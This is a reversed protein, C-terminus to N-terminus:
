SLVGASRRSNMLNLVVVLMLSVGTVAILTLFGNAYDGGSADAIRSTIITGVAGGMTEIVTIAGLIKGYERLGFRDAVFLQLLVFTGGYNLGFLVAFLYVTNGDLSLFVLTSMFMTAASVLMVRLTSFRDALWGYAFKGCISLLFLLSQVRGAEAPSFGISPGQLYLNLQQTVVFLAYFVLAACLSFVWFVPTKIAEFLTWGDNRSITPEYATESAVLGPRDKVLFIVAPLLILWVLLSVLAMATRWGMSQILPTAIQPVIVGGFSTGTLVIGLALGRNRDFWNSVLVTCVLVGVFGLSTGLLAHAAYVITASAAQSYLVLGGGLIFCGLIMMTKPALRQLLFGALPALFGALLFTLAPATGYVSQIESQAVAGNAVLEDQIFKYFVPIGGISLGNSVALAFTAVGVIMWGYRSESEQPM